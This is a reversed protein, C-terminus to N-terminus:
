RDHIESAQNFCSRFKDDTIFFLGTEKKFSWDIPDFGYLKQIRARQAPKWNVTDNTNYAGNYNSIAAEGRPDRMIYLNAVM